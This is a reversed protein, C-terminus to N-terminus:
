LDHGSYSLSFSKNCIPFDALLNGRVAISLGTWNNFSPDKIAYRSIAKDAGTFVLHILEGRFAEVIGVGISNAPLKDPVCSLVSGAPIEELLTEILALSNFLETIRVKIRASVDGKTEVAVPPAHTPFIGQPFHQRTDYAIGSARGAIGVLGFDRALSPSVRGITEMREQASSNEVFLTIVPELSVKLKHTEHRITSLQKDPDKHVGGPLIFGRQFRTGTLLDALRLASGRLRALTSAMGLYGIDVAMGGLDAIHMAIRELELSLSRLYQAKPPAQIQVLSEMAQAHALANAAATDSSAAEALFRAKQWPIKSLQKEIGRHLYGLRIELNLIEEGLCSLRFHGPEIIGAHIPGVPVEYVGEGEVKLFEYKRQTASVIEPLRAITRLPHFHPDYVEHLLLQKLRPHGNPYLGFLDWVAREYWHCQPILPTLSPYEDGSLPSEWLQASGQQPDLVLTILQSGDISTILGLRQHKDALWSSLSTLRKNLPIELHKVKM